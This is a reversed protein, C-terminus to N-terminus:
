YEALQRMHGIGGTIGSSPLSIADECDREGVSSDGFVVRIMNSGTVSGRGAIGCFVDGFSLRPRELADGFSM